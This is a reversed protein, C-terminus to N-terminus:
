IMVRALILLWIGLKSLWGPVRTRCKLLEVWKGGRLFSWSRDAQGNGVHKPSSTERLTGLTSRTQRAMRMLGVFDPAKHCFFSSTKERPLMPCYFAYRVLAATYCRKPGASPFVEKQSSQYFIWYGSSGSAAVSCKRGWESKEVMMVYQRFHQFLNIKGRQSSASGEMGMPNSFNSVPM